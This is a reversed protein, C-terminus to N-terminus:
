TSTTGNVKAKTNGAQPSMDLFINSLSIDFLKSGLNEELLKVTETKCKLRQNMKPLKTYPTLFYDLM